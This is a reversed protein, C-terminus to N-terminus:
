KIFMEIMEDSTDRVREGAVHWAYEEDDPYFAIEVPEGIENYCILRALLKIRAEKCARKDRKKKDELSM